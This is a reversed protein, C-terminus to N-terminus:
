VGFQRLHHDLHKSYLTNWEQVSLKGFSLSERQDYHSSGLDYTKQMYTMLRAKEKEFDRQDSIVFQPATRGNKPYPKAGVVQSKAFLKIMFRAFANPKSHINEHDMEYAVCLHALMQSVNMKGWGAQTENTLKNIREKATNFDQQEFLNPINM